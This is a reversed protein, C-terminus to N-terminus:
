RYEAPLTEKWASFPNRRMQRNYFRADGTVEMGIFDPKEFTETISGLEVEAMVLGENEGHFEDIEFVHRGSKVLYRHKDIIGKEYRSLGGDVSKGKITLYGKSDRIRVRVTNIAAFYGQRVHSVSYAQSKWDMNKHVLFKREIELGSSMM